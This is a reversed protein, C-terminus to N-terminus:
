VTAGPCIKSFEFCTTLARGDPTVACNEGSVSVGGPVEMRLSLAALLAAKPPFPDAGCM